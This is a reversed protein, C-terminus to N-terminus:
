RNWRYYNYKEDSQVMKLINFLLLILLLISAEMLKQIINDGFSPLMVLQPFGILMFGFSKIYFSKNKFCHNILKFLLINLIIALLVTWYGLQWASVAYSSTGTNFSDTRNGLLEPIRRSPMGSVDSNYSTPVPKDKWVIRPIFKVLSGIYPNFGAFNEGDYKLLISSYAISNFKTNLEELIIKYTEGRSNLIIYNDVGSRKNSIYPLLVLSAVFTFSLIIYSFTKRIINTQKVM